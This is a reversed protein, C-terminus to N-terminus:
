SKGETNGEIKKPDKGTRVFYFVNGILEIFSHSPTGEWFEEPTFQNGYVDCVFEVIKDMDETDMDSYDIEEEFEALKRFHKASVFPPQYVVETLEGDKEKCLTFKM